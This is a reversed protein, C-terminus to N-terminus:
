HVVPYYEDEVRATTLWVHHEYPKPDSVLVKQSACSKVLLYDIVPQDVEGVDLLPVSVDVDVAFKLESSLSKANLENPGFVFFEITYIRRKLNSGLEAAVGGDDFQFGFAVYCKNKLDGEFQEFPFDDLYEVKDSDWGEVELWAKAFAQVSTEVKQERTVAMEIWRGM